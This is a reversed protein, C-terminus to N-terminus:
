IKGMYEIVYEDKEINKMAILGRGKGDKHKKSRSKEM